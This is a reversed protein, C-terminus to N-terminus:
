IDLVLLFWQINIIYIFYFFYIIYFSFSLLDVSGLVFDVSGLIAILDAININKCFKNLQNITLFDSAIINVVYFPFSSIFLAYLGKSSEIFCHFSSSISSLNPSWLSSSNFLSFNFLFSYITNEMSSFSYSNIIARSSLSLSLSSLSLSSLSGSLGFSGLSGLSLSFLSIFSNYIFYISNYMENFRLIYRDLCDSNLSLFTNFNIFSYSDYNYLRGDLLLNSSRALLGSFGFFLNTKLPIIGIEFLRKIWISSISLLLYLEILRRIFTLLFLFLSEIFFLSISFRLRNIYLYALHFRSGTISELLNYIKDREEFLWLMSTFLGIDIAHTTIALCHNLIRYLEVLLIRIISTYISSISNFLRELSYIFLLEQSIVSVYDFRDFYLLSSYYYNLKILKESGRHLLGIEINLWNILENNLLVILRLVGHTSPHQPGINIIM